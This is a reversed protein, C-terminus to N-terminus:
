LYLVTILNASLATCTPNKQLGQSKRILCFIWKFFSAIITSVGAENDMGEQFQMIKKSTALFRVGTYPSRVKTSVAGAEQVCVCVYLM